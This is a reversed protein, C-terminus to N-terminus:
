SWPTQESPPEDRRMRPRPITTVPPPTLLTIPSIRGVPAPAAYERRPKARKVRRGRTRNIESLDQWAPVCAVGLLAMLIRIPIECELPPKLYPGHLDTILAVLKFLSLGSLIVLGLAPWLRGANIRRGLVILFIGPVLYLVSPVQLAQGIQLPPAHIINPNNLYEIGACYLWALVSLGGVFQSAGALFSVSPSAIKMLTWSESHAM